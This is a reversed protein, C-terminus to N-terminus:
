RRVDMAILHSVKPPPDSLAEAPQQYERDTATLRSGHQRLHEEWSSVFFLEIFRRSAEGDRFLGWRTAGTGLRSLRAYQMAGLFRQEEEPAISYSLTVVVPGSEPAIPSTLAPEPWYAITSRDMGETDILPWRRGIAAGAILAATAIVLTPELGLAGAIFAGLLAGLAQAGFFVTQYLSLARGRVWTPLFLQLEANVSSLVAVWAIGAPVLVVLLVIPSPVIAAAVLAVAYAASALSMVSTIGVRARLAPLLVAGIIAGLGLTGLL